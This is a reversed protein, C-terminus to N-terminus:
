LARRTLQRPTLFSMRGKAHLDSLKARLPKHFQEGQPGDSTIAYPHGYLVAIGGNAVCLNVINAVDPSGYDLRGLGYRSSLGPSFASSIAMPAFPTSRFNAIPAATTGGSRVGISRFGYYGGAGEVFADWEDRLYDIEDFSDFIELRLTKSDAQLSHFRRNPRPSGISRRARRESDM